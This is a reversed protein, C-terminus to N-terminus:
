CTPMAPLDKEAATNVDVVGLSKGVQARASMSVSSGIAAVTTLVACIVIGSKLNM